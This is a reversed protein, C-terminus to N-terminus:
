KWTDAYRQFANIIGFFMKEKAGQYGGTQMLYNNSQILAKSSALSLTPNFYSGITIPGNTSFNYDHMSARWDGEGGPPGFGGPGAWHNKSYDLPGFAIQSFTGGTLPQIRGTLFQIYDGLGGSISNGALQGQLWNANASAFGSCGGTCSSEDGNWQTQAGAAFTTYDVTATDSNGAGSINVSGVQFMQTRDNFRAWNEAAYGPVWSGGNQGCEGSNSNHDISEVGNGADNAYVCDLGNPDLYMLPNNRAYAYLNWSQPDAPNQALLSSPDPSLFRGMSSAYYRAGLNDNGSETDREKGTFHHETADAVDATSVPITALGDGYPLGTFNLVPNGAYDTQQRRTGLWDSLHFYMPGGTQGTLDADYTASLGPAFVNTHAWQWTGSNDTVETMQEGSPGLVYVTTATFGNQTTDCGASWNTITGKAVRNGEADYLYQTMTTTGDISQQMACIRGEGDYLYSNGTTSDAYINGAADYSYLGGSIQNRTNYSAGFSPGTTVTCANAGGATTAYPTPSSTQWLRNGFSDYQWCYSPYINDDQSGNATALRNLSDYTLSWPGGNVSDTYGTVNGVGDYGEASGNANQISFSYLAASSGSEPEAAVELSLTAEDHQQTTGADVVQVVFSVPNTASTPTGLIIGSSSLSLGAPLSGSSLSWTYSNSGGTANLQVSYSHNVSGDSLSDTTIQLQSPSPGASCSNSYTGPMVVFPLLNSAKDGTIVQVLGSAAGPPVKLFIQSATWLSVTAPVPIGMEEKSDSSSYFYPLFWVVGKDGLNSGSLVLPTGAPGYAVTGPGYPNTSNRGAMWVQSQIPAYPAEITSLVPGQAVLSTAAAMIAPSIIWPNWRKM